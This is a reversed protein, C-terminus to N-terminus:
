MLINHKETVTIGFWTIVLWSWLSGNCLSMLTTAKDMNEVNVRTNLMTASQKQILFLLNLIILLYSRQNLLITMCTNTRLRLM